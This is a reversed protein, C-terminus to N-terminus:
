PWAGRGRPGPSPTHRDGWHPHEKKWSEHIKRKFDYHQHDECLLCKVIQMVIDWTLKAAEIALLGKALIRSETKISNYCAPTAICEFEGGDALKEFATKVDTFSLCSKKARNSM